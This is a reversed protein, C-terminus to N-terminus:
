RHMIRDDIAYKISEISESLNRWFQVNSAANPVAATGDPKTEHSLREWADLENQRFTTSLNIYMTLDNWQSVTLTVSLPENQLSVASSSKASENDIVM